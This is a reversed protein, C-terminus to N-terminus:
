RMRWVGCGLVAAVTAFHLVDNGIPTAPGGPGGPLEPPACFGQQVVIFSCVLFFVTSAIWKSRKNM